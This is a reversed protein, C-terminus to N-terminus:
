EYRQIMYAFVNNVTPSVCRQCFRVYKLAAYYVLYNSPTDSYLSPTCVRTKATFGHGCSPNQFAHSKQVNRQNM